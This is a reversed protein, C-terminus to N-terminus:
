GNTGVPRPAGAAIRQGHTQRRAIDTGQGGGQLFLASEAACDRAAMASFTHWLYIWRYSRSGLQTYDRTTPARTAIDRVPAARYRAPFAETAVPTPGPSPANVHHNLFSTHSTTEQHGASPRPKAPGNMLLPKGRRGCQLQETPRFLGSHNALPFYDGCPEPTAM